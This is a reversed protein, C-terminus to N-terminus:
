KMWLEVRELRRVAHDYLFGFAFAVLIRHIALNPPAQMMMRGPEVAYFTRVPDLWFAAALIAILVAMAAAAYQNRLYTTLVVTLIGMTAAVLYPVGFMVPWSFGGGTLWYFATTLAAAVAGVFLCVPAFKMLLLGHRTRSAALLVELTRGEKERPLLGMSLVVFFLSELKLVLDFVDKDGSLNDGLAAWTFVGVALIVLVLAQLGLTLRGSFWLLAATDGIRGKVRDWRSQEGNEAAASDEM